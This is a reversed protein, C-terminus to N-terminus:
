SQERGDVAEVDVDARVVNGEILVVLRREERYVELLEGSDDLEVFVAALPEFVVSDDEAVHEDAHVTSVRAHVEDAEKADAAADVFVLFVGDLEANGVVALVHHVNPLHERVDLGVDLLHQALSLGSRAEGPQGELVHLLDGLEEVVDFTLLTRNTGTKNKQVARSPLAAATANAHVNCTHNAATATANAKSDPSLTLVPM